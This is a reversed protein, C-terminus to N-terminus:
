EEKAPQPDVLNVTNNEKLFDCWEDNLLIGNTQFTHMSFDKEAIKKYAALHIIWECDKALLKMTDFDCVDAKYFQFNPHSLNHSINELKGYSLNDIGIIKYGKQLLDDILHSGIMGAVGTIFVTKMNM